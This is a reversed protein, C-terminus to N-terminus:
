HWVFAEMAVMTGKLVNHYEGPTTHTRTTSISIGSYSQFFCFWSAARSFYGFSTDEAQENLDISGLIQLKSSPLVKCTESTVKLNGKM